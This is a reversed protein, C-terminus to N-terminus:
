HFLYSSNFVSLRLSRKSKSMHHNYLSKKFFGQGCLNCRHRPEFHTVRHASLAKRRKFGKNCVDCFFTDVTRHIDMHRQLSTNTSYKKDCVNCAFIGKQLKTDMHQILLSKSIFFRGCLDCMFMISKKEEFSLHKNRIHAALKYRHVEIGCSECIETNNKIKITEDMAEQHYALHQALGKQTAFNTKSKCLTCSFVPDSHHPTHIRRHIRMLTETQILKKCSFCKIKPKSNHEDLCHQKFHKFKSFNVHCLFCKMSFIVCFLFKISCM